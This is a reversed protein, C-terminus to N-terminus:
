ELGGRGEWSTTNSGVEQSELSCTFLPLSGQPEAGPKVPNTSVSLVPDTRSSAGSHSRSGPAPGKKGRNLPCVMFMGEYPRGTPCKPCSPGTTHSQQSLLKRSPGPVEFHPRLAEEAVGLGTSAPFLQPEPTIYAEQASVMAPIPGAKQIHDLQPM